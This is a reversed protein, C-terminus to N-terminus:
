SVGSAPLADGAPGPSGDPIGSAVRPTRPALLRRSLAAAVDGAERALETRRPEDTDASVFTVAVAAAPLDLHDRAAVAVSALGTTIEGEETAWGRARTRQLETRLRGPTWPPVEQRPVFAVRDPYLARVDAPRLGALLARGSATLYAPLRVGVDSVLSPRHRAREEILYVVDRGHLVALHANEGVRDVLAGLLPRALRTIPAQRVHASALEYAAIGLGYRGEEPLHVVFGQERMVALLHYVSSRPLDLATAISFATVPGPRTALHRLIRLTHEAAPVKSM